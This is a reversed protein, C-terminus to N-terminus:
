APSTRISALLPSATRSLSGSPEVRMGSPARYGSTLFVSFWFFMGPFSNHSDSAVELVLLLLQIILGMAAISAANANATRLFTRYSAFSAMLAIVLAIVYGAMGAVGLELFRALYGNDLATADGGSLKTSTGTAGLGQGLPEQIGTELSDASVQTRAQVSRDNGLDTFSSLRSGLSATTKAAGSYSVMTLLGAGVLAFAVAMAGLSNFATRRQPSLLLYLVIGLAVAVWVSRVSTLALAIIPPLLGLVIRWRSLRLRPVNILIAFMLFAAFPGTSNLTGFVRFNFSETVGQSGEINAQQAWYADWPPPSIYQWIGYTASIVGLWLLAKAIREYTTTINEGTSGASLLVYFLIPAVFLTLAYAASLPSSTLFAVFFAYGFAFIWLRTVRRGSVGMRAWQSPLFFVGPVLTLLPLLSFPSLQHFTTRWDYLRRLEPALVWTALVLPVYGRWTFFRRM